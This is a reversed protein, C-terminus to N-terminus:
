QLVSFHFGSVLRDDGAERSNQAKTHSRGCPRLIGLNIVLSLELVPV